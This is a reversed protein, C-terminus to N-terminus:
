CHLFSRCRWSWWCSEMDQRYFRMTAHSMLFSFNFVKPAVGNELISLAFIIKFNFFNPAFIRYNPIVFIGVRNVDIWIVGFQIVDFYDIIWVINMCYFLNQWQRYGGFSFKSIPCCTVRLWWWMFWWWLYHCRFSLIRWVVVWGIRYWVYWSIHIWIWAQWIRTQQFWRFWWVVLIKFLSLM